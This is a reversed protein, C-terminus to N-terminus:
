RKITQPKHEDDTDKLVYKKAGEWYMKPYASWDIASVDFPFENGDIAQNVANQLLNANTTDFIWNNQTFFDVLILIRM